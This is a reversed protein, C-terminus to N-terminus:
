ERITFKRHIERDYNTYDTPFIGTPAADAVQPAPATRGSPIQQAANQAKEALEAVKTNEDEGPSLDGTSAVENVQSCTVILLELFVRFRVYDYSQINRTLRFVISVSAQKLM